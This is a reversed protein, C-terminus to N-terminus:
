WSSKASVLYSRGAEERNAAHVGWVFSRLKIDISRASEKARWTAPIKQAVQRDETNRDDDNDHCAVDDSVILRIARVHRTKHKRITVTRLASHLIPSSDHM